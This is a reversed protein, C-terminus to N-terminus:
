FTLVNILCVTDLNLTATKIDDLDFEPRIKPFEKAEFQGSPNEIFMQAHEYSLKVASNIM